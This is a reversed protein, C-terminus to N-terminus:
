LKRAVVIVDKIIEVVANRSNVAEFLVIYIGIKLPSKSNDLGDFIIEGNSGSPINNALNRVIRGKSDFIRIRVQAISEKLNYRIITFDEYGDNDPSFPNPSISLKTENVTNSINISNQRGPTGGFSSVSSSWNNSNNRDLNTNILELSINKTKSFASNHWAESYIVSDIVENKYDILYVSKGSNSLNLSSKNSITSNQHELLWSYNNYIQSDASIIFYNNPEIFYSKNSLMFLENEVKIKWNGLEILNDTPNYIEIYESNNDNPNFMIETIVLDSFNNQPLLTISNQNGPTSGFSNLSIAWNTPNESSSELDIREISTGKDINSFSYYVSDIMANRYDYVIVADKSSSFEPFNTNIFKIEDNLELSNKFDSIILFQNPEIFNDEETIIRKDKLDGILWNKINITSDSNNIIEVWKSEGNNPNFMIENILVTRSNFGAVFYKEFYNNIMDEDKELIIKVAIVVTDSIILNNQTSIVISDFSAITLNTQTELLNNPLLEGYYFELSFNEISNSGNNYIKAAIKIKENKVPNNPVVSINGISLDYKKPSLSNIRGPTSGEIDNSNGWNNSNISSNQPVIREISKGKVAPWEGNYKLSDITKGNLDKLVIGDEDNNLNAFNLEIVDCLITRHFNYISGSKSVVLYEGKNLLYDKDLIEKFVPTTIVDGLIWNKLNINFESRNYLEIWEPEDNEPSFMIENIVISQIPFSPHLSFQMQNNSTDDDVTSIEIIFNQQEEKVTIEKEFQYILSKNPDLILKESYFITSDKLSDLNNDIWLKLNFEFNEKGINNIVATIKVKENILSYKNNTYVSDIRVDMNKQTVSNIKGPTPYQSEIWSNFNVSEFNPDVRELSKGDKGGFSALYYVSDMIRDLSDLLLIEDETNNLTPLNLIVANTIEQYTTFFTSDDAIVMFQNPPIKLEQNTIFATDNADSIKYNNLSINKGSNNYLEIWEPEDNIPSYMIENIVIEYKSYGPNVRVWKFNNTTDDDSVTCKVLFNQTYDEIKIKYDFKIELSDNPLLIVTESNELLIDNKNGFLQLNFSMETRGINKISSSITVFEGLNANQPNYFAETIEIDYEKPSISNIKGPTPFKSEGWNELNVSENNPNIRELSNGNKGGWTSSYSVSDIIRSLSDMIVIKDETNNLTPLKTSIVNQLNSYFNFITNDDSFILYEKPEIIISETNISITDVADAVKYNKITISKDSRNFVEFWEPEDNIPSYMIENIILDGRVENLEIGSISIFGLNNNLLEDQYFDIEVIFINEGKLSITIEKEIQYTNQSVLNSISEAFILEYDQILSDLNKDEYLNLTFLSINETGLNKVFINATVTNGIIGYSKSVKIESIGVDYQLPSVSNKTGPTGNIINSNGWENNEFNIREDSIGNANNASYTYYDLTDDASNILYLTRDSSNSMGSTGFSNDDLIFLLVNEPILNNYIGNEFDYDAEFILAYQNPLLEYELNISFITDTTSTQYKIFYNELDVTELSNNYIEVFESNTESPAFMIENLIIQSRLPIFTLLYVAAFIYIYINSKININM